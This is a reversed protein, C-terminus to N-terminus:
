YFVFCGITSHICHISCPSLVLYGWVCSDAWLHMLVLWSNSSLAFKVIYFRFWLLDWLLLDYFSEFIGWLAWVKMLFPRGLQCPWRGVAGLALGGGLFSKTDGLCERWEVCASVDDGWLTANVVKGSMDMLYINRKSVERNNSKVIIKTVDEYNKCIGIIDLFCAHHKLLFHDLAERTAWPYLIQRGIYSVHTQDRTQSSGVHQLAVSGMRWLYLTQAGSGRSGGVVSARM